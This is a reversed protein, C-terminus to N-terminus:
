TRHIREVGREIAEALALAEGPELTFTKSPGLTWVQLEVSRPRGGELHRKVLAQAAAGPVSAEGLMVGKAAGVTEGRLAHWLWWAVFAAAALAVFGVVESM